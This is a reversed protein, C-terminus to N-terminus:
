LKEKRIKKGIRNQIDNYLSEIKQFQNLEEETLEIEEILLGNPKEKYMFYTSVESDLIYVKPM